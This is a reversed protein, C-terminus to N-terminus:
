NHHAPKESCHSRQDCLIPELAWLSWHNCCTPKCNWHGPELTCVWCNHHTLKSARRCTPDEQILPPFRYRRCQYLHLREMTDSEKRGWPSYGVLNKWGHSKGPLLVPTPQWKRRWLIEQMPLCVWGSFWWPLGWM